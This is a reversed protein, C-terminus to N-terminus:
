NIEWYYCIEANEPCKDLLGFEPDYFKGKYYLSWHGYGPLQMSVICIDPLIINPFFPKRINSHPIKYYDLAKNIDEDCTGYEEYMIDAVEAPTVGALMAVCAQGCQYENPQAQYNISNAYDNANGDIYNIRYIDQEYLSDPYNHKKSFDDRTMTIKKDKIFFTKAKLGVFAYHIVKNLAEECLNSNRYEEALLYDAGASLEGDSMNLHLAISGITKIKRKGFDEKPVMAWERSNTDIVKNIKMEKAFETTWPALFLRETELLPLNIKNSM